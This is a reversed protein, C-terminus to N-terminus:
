AQPHIIQGQKPIVDETKLSEIFLVPHVGKPKAGPPDFEMDFVSDVERFGLYWMSNLFFYGDVFSGRM